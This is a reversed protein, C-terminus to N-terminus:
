EPWHDVLLQVISKMAHVPNEAGWVRLSIPYMLCLFNMIRILLSVCMIKNVMVNGLFDITIDTDDVIKLDHNGISPEM